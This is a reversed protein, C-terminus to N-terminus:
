RGFGFFIPQRPILVTQLRNIYADLQPLTQETYRVSSGDPTRVEAERQGIAIAHRAAYAENLYQQVTARDM